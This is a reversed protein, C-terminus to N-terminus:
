ADLVNIADWLERSFRACDVTNDTKLSGDGTTGFEITGDQYRRIDLTESGGDKTITLTTLLVRGVSPGAAM